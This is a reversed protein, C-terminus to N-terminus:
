EAYRKSAHRSQEHAAPPSQGLRPDGVQREAELRDEPREQDQPPRLNERSLPKRVGYYVGRQYAHQHHAGSTLTGREEQQEEQRRQPDQPELGGRLGDGRGGGHDAGIKYRRDAESICL